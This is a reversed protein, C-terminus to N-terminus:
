EEEGAFRYLFLGTKGYRYKKQLRFSGAEEPLEDKYPAECIIVGGENVCAEAATMSKVAQYVNQDLPYGGNTTIVIDGPIREARCQEMSFACGAEHALTPDGAFARVVRKESDIIVNLIFALGALKAAAFMDAHIPNGELIGTRARPHDILKYCHNSMVSKASAIGPLISKRGGSFGAF